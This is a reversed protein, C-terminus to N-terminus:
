TILNPMRDTSVDRWSCRELVGAWAIDLAPCQWKGLLFSFSETRKELCKKKRWENPGLSLFTLLKNSRSSLQLIMLVLARWLVLQSGVNKSGSTPLQSPMGLGHLHRTPDVPNSSCFTFQPAPNCEMPILWRVQEVRESFSMPAFILVQYKSRQIHYQLTM